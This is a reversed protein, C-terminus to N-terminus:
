ESEREIVTEVTPGGYGRAQAEPGDHDRPKAGNM